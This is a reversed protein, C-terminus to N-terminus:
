GSIFNGPYRRLLDAHIKEITKADRKEQPVDITEVAIVRTPRPALLVL